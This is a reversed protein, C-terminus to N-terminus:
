GQRRRKASVGVIGLGALLMAWTEPEPVTLINEIPEGFAITDIFYDWRGSNVTLDPTITVLDIALGGSNLRFVGFGNEWNGALNLLSVSDVVDAGSFAEITYSTPVTLGNFLLGEVTTIGLQTPIVISIASQLSSDGFDATGYLNPATSFPSAPLNSPFGLVVGGSFTIGGVTIDQAPGASAFYSPGTPLLPVNEFDIIVASATMPFVTAAVVLLVRYFAQTGWQWIMAPVERTIRM